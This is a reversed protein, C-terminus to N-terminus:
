LTQFPLFLISCLALLFPRVDFNRVRKQLKQENMRENQWFQIMEKMAQIMPGPEYSQGIWQTKRELVSPHPGSRPFLLTLVCGTSPGGQYSIALTSGASRKDLIWCLFGCFNRCACKTGTKTSFSLEHLNQLLAWQLFFIPFAALPSADEITKSTSLCSIQKTCRM